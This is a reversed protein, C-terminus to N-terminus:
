HRVNFVSLWRKQDAFTLSTIDSLCRHSNWPKLDSFRYSHLHFDCRWILVQRDNIITLTQSDKNNGSLRKVLAGLIHKVIGGDIFHGIDFSLARHPDTYPLGWFASQPTDFNYKAYLHNRVKVFRMSYNSLLRESNQRQGFMQHLEHAQNYIRKSERATRPVCPANLTTQDDKGVLCIPSPFKSHSGRTLAIM